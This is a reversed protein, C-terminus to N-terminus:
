AAAKGKLGLHTHGFATEYKLGYGAARDFGAHALLILGVWLVTPLNAVFGLAGVGLALSYTHLLNYAATGARRGAYFLLFSLDPALFLLLFLWWPAGLTFYAATAAAFIAAGEIRLLTRVQGEAFGTTRAQATSPSQVSM